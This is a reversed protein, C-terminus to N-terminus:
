SGRVEVDLAESALRAADTASMGKRIAEMAVIHHTLKDVFDGINMSVDSTSASIFTYEGIRVTVAHVPGAGDVLETVVIDDDEKATEELVGQTEDNM